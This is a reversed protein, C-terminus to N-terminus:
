ARNKVQANGSVAGDSLKRAEFSFTRLDTVGTDSTFQFHGSGTVTQVIPTDAAPAALPLMLVGVVLAVLPLLRADRWKMTMEKRSGSRTIPNVTRPSTHTM